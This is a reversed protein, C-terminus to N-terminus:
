DHDEEDAANHQEVAQEPIIEGAAQAAGIEARRKGSPSWHPDDRSATHRPFGIATIEGDREFIGAILSDVPNLHGSPFDRSVQLTGKTTHLTLSPVDPMLDLIRQLAMRTQRSIHLGEMSGGVIMVQWPPRRQKALHELAKDATLYVPPEVPM